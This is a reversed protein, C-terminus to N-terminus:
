AQEATLSLYGLDCWGLALGYVLRPLPACACGLISVLNRTFHPLNDSLIQWVLLRHLLVPFHKIQITLWCCSSSPHPLIEHIGEGVGVHGQTSFSLSFLSLSLFSGIYLWFFLEIYKGSLLELVIFSSVPSSSFFLSLPFLSV